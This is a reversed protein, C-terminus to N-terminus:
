WGDLNRIKVMTLHLAQAMNNIDAASSVGFALANAMEPVDDIGAQRFARILFLVETEYDDRYKAVANLEINKVHLAAM